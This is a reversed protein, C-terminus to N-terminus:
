AHMAFIPQISIVIPVTAGVTGSGATTDEITYGIPWIGTDSVIENAAIENDFEIITGAVTSPSVWHGADINTDTAACMVTLVYGEMAVAVEGGVTAQTNLAVGVPTGVSVLAPIVTATSGADAYAVVQGRLIATGAKFTKSLGVNEPNPDFAVPTTAGM